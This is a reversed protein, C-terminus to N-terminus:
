REGSHVLSFQGNMVGGPLRGQGEWAQCRLEAREGERQVCAVMIGCQVSVQDRKLSHFERSFSPRYREHEIGLM